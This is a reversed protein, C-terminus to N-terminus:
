QLRLTQDRVAETSLPLYRGDRVIADQGERSLIYRLFEDVKPDVAAGPPRDVFATIFRTLPYRRSILNEKTAHYAPGAPDTALALPKVLPTAYLLSSVAIGYRDQGLSDLVQQGSDLLTGDPRKVDVYERLGPNWRGSGGMVTDQFFLAFGRSLAFGYTQIPRGAWEGALGLQGWTRINASGRRHECGFVGDLDALTLQVLPNDKHVFVVLAFDFNRVDLSGTAIDIGLPRYGKVREFAALESRLIERGLIAVDGVGAYLAGIASATGHMRDDFRIGPQHRQFGTQWASVLEGMFHNTPSGHGWLRITGSVQRAPRYPRIPETQAALLVTASAIGLIALM